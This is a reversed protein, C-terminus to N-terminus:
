SVGAKLTATLDGVATVIHDPMGIHHLARELDDGLERIELRLYDIREQLDDERCRKCLEHAEVLEAEAQKWPQEGCRLCSTVM